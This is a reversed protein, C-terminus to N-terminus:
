VLAAAVSICFRSNRRNPSHAIFGSASKCYEKVNDFSKVIPGSLVENGIEGAKFEFTTVIGFNGGGGRIAWFLDPNETASANVVKGAATVIEASLLNDISLGFKRSIWGFGGGLTLGGVGTHSIIGSSIALGHKQTAADVMSLLCGGQVKVTKTSANVEVNNMLSLDIMLGDDCVATGASNHGGGKVAILMKNERGFDVAHIVDAVNKCRIIVAPKRDFMGNWIKRTEDYTADGPLIVNGAIATKLTTIKEPTM